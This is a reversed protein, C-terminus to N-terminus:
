ICPINHSILVSCVMDRHEKAADQFLKLKAPNTFEKGKKYVPFSSPPNGLLNQFNLHPFNMSANMDDYGYDKRLFPQHVRISQLADTMQCFASLFVHVNDKECVESDVGVWRPRYKYHLLGCDPYHGLRGHGLYVISYCSPASPTRTKSIDIGDENMLTIESVDNIWYNPTGVFYEHAWTDAMVHMRIGILYLLFQKKEQSASNYQGYMNITTDIMNQVLTSNHLCLCKFDTGDTSEDFHLIDPGTSNGPKWAKNGTYVMRHADTDLNGPLFHFPMWIRRIKRLTTNDPDHSWYKFDDLMNEVTGECTAEYNGDTLGCDKLLSETCDDVMQAAWAIEEAEPASFGAIRAACFTGYYHFDMNM